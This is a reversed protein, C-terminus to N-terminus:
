VPTKANSIKGVLRPNIRNDIDFIISDLLRRLKAKPIEVGSSVLKKLLPKGESCYGEWTATGNPLLSYAAPLDYEKCVVVVTKVGDLKVLRGYQVPMTFISKTNLVSCPASLKLCLKKKKQVPKPVPTNLM